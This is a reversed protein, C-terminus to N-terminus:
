FQHASHAGLTMVYQLTVLNDDEIGQLNQGQQHSYQLRVTSFHSHHWALMMETEKLQQTDAHEGHLTLMDAQGYRVGTSWQPAFQYVASVYWGQQSDSSHSHETNEITSEHHEDEPEHHSDQAPLFGDVYFFEGSLSLHRYKYNGQPAWKYVLDVGYIHRGTYAATHSHGHDDPQSLPEGHNHEDFMGQGNRNHLYSLGLQWSSSDSIDGGFKSFATYVGVSAYDRNGETDAARLNRGSFAEAGLQWYLATPALYSLRLGDDFYHSAFFARYLAPRDVFNDTHLHQNNLYGIDSLFRGGRLAFGAPLALTQIFAEELELETDGDGVALVTTIKGYFLDDINASIALETEGLGFGDNRGNLIRNGQQYYGDLVASINPNTLSANQAQASFSLLLVPCVTSLVLHRTLPLISTCLEM